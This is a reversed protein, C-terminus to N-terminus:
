LAFRFAPPACWLSPRVRRARVEMTVAGRADARFDVTAFHDGTLRSRWPTEIPCGPLDPLGPFSREARRWPRVAGALSRLPSMCLPSAVVEVLAKGRRNVGSAVRGWHVDGTLVAISTPADLMAEALASFQPVYQLLDSGFTGPRFRREGFLPQSVVLVKPGGPSRVWDLLANFEAHPLFHPDDREVDTRRQRTDVLLFRLPGVAFRQLLKGGQFARMLKTAAKRKAPHRAGEDATYNDWFDHDDPVFFNGGARLLAGFGPHTWADRYIGAARPGEALGRGKCSAPFTPDLYVQDGCLIKIAPPTELAEVARAIADSRSTGPDFCSALLVRFPEAGLAAPLASARASAVRREGEWLEYDRAAVAAPMTVSATWIAGPLPAWTGLARREGACRVTLARAAPDAGFAAVFLGVSAATPTRPVLAYEISPLAEPM